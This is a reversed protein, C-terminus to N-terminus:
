IQYSLCRGVGRLALSMGMMGAGVPAGTIAVAVAAELFGVQRRVRGRLDSHWQVLRGLVPTRSSDTSMPSGSGGASNRSNAEISHLTDGFSLSTQTALEEEVEGGAQPPALETEQGALAMDWYPHDSGALAAEITLGRSEPSFSPAARIPPHPNTGPRGGDEIYFGQMRRLAGPRRPPSYGALLHPDSAAAQPPTPPPTPPPPTPKRVVFHSSSTISSNARSQSPRGCPTQRTLSYKVGYYGCVIIRLNHALECLQVPGDVGFHPSIARMARFGASRSPYGIFLSKSQSSALRFGRTLPWSFHRRLKRTIFAAYEPLFNRVIVWWRQHVTRRAIHELRLTAYFKAERIRVAQRTRISDLKTELSTAKQHALEIAKKAGTKFIM